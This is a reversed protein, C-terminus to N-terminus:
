SEFLVFSSIFSMKVQISISTIFGHMLSSVRLTGTSSKFPPSWMPFPYSLLACVDETTLNLRFSISQMGAVVSFDLPFTMNVGRVKENPISFRPSKKKLMAIYVLLTSLPM